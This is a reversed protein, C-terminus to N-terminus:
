RRIPATKWFRRSGGLRSAANPAWGRMFRFVDYYLNDSHGIAINAFRVNEKDGFTNFAALLGYHRYTLAPAKLARVRKEYEIRRRAPDITYTELFPLLPHDAVFPKIETFFDDASVALSYRLFEFRRNVLPIRNGPRLPRSGGVVFRRTDDRSKGADLLAKGPGAGRARDGARRGRVQAVRANRRGAHRIHRRPVRLGTFTNRHNSGVGGMAIVSDYVRYCEPMRRLVEVGVKLGREAGARSEAALVHFVRATDGFSGDGSAEKLKGCDFRCLSDILGAWEPTPTAGRVADGAKLDALAVGHLGPLAAAYDRNWHGWPSTQNATSATGCLSPEQAKYVWTMSDWQSDTLMGLNPYVQSLRRADGAVRRQRSDGRAAAPPPSDARHVDNPRATKRSRRPRGSERRGSQSQRSTRARKVANVYGGRSLCRGRRPGGDAVRIGGYQHAGEMKWLTRSAASPGLEITLEHKGAIAFKANVHFQNNM